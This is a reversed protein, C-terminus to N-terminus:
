VTAPFEVHISAGEGPTSQISLRGKLYEVRSRINTWGIGQTEGSAVHDFGKGDDEVTISILKSDHSLQVIATSADAHKIVNNVLEQIIRYVPIAANRSIERNQMGISQYSVKLAGSQNIDNCFDRLAADLGFKMLAGPMMNHAVRRMEKISVDLMDVGKEFAHQNEPSLHLNGKMTNFSYKIGSLIGGLGDHLDKALRSREQEEGKLVAETAALQKETELESIRQQQLKQKQKQTRFILVSLIVLMIACGILIYIGINKQRISLQQLKKEAELTKIASQQKETEYKKELEASQQSLVDRMLKDLTKGAMNDFDFGADYNQRAYEVMGIARYINVEDAALQNQQVIILASDLLQRASILKGQQLDCLGLVRFAGAVGSPDGIQRYTELNRLAYSRAEAYSKRKVAYGALNSNIGATIWPENFATSLREAEKLLAYGSDLKELDQYTMSLNTLSKILQLKNNLQRSQAIAKKGYLLAKDYNARAQYLIQLADNVQVEIEPKNNKEIISLGKLSYEIASEFDSKDRYTIGINFLAIGPSLPDNTEKAAEYAKFNYYLSSDFEATFLFVGGYLTLSRYVGHKYNLKQSLGLAQNLYTKAAAPESNSYLDGLELLVNVKSTDEKSTKLRTLLADKTAQGSVSPSICVLLL